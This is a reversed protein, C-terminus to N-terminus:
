PCDPPNACGLVPDAPLLGPGCNPFPATIMPGGGFLFNLLSVPDAINVDDDGNTNLAAFCGPETAGGFMYNLSCAADAVNVDSDGNCDGRLFPPSPECSDPVGNGNVDSLIGAEIDCDDPFGNGNCDGIDSRESGNFRVVISDGATGGLDDVGNGDLDGM